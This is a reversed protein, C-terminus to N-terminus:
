DAAPVRPKAKLHFRLQGHASGHTAEIIFSLDGGASRPMPFELLADGHSGTDSVVELPAAAGEVRLTVHAAAPKGSADHVGVHLTAHHGNLWTHPNRLELKLSSSEPAPAPPPVAPAPQPQAPPPPFHLAGSRMEELVARHQDDLRIKLAHLRDEDLPLLDQYNSTRRHMVRGRCYVTTDLISHAEGRDETQVHYTIGDLTVNTNHGFLM